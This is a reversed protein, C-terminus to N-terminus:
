KQHHISLIKHKALDQPGLSIKLYVPIYLGTCGWELCICYMSVEGPTFMCLTEKRLTETTGALVEPSAFEYRFVVIM